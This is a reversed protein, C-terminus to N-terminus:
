AKRTTEMYKHDNETYTHYNKFRKKDRINNQTLKQENREKSDNQAM